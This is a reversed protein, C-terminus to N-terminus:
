FSFDATSEIIFTYCIKNKGYVDKLPHKRVYKKTKKGHIESVSWQGKLDTKPCVKRPSIGICRWQQERPRVNVRLSLESLRVIGGEKHESARVKANKRQLKKIRDSAFSSSFFNM